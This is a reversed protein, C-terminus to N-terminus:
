NSSGSPVRLMFVGGGETGAFINRSDNPDIALSTINRHFMGQVLQTWSDGGNTSYYTGGQSTGAFVRDSNVPDIALALVMPFQIGNSSPKWTLGGDESRIVGFGATGAYIRNPRRPDVAVTMLVPDILEMQAAPTWTQGSDNSIIVGSQLTGLIVRGGSLVTMTRIEIDSSAVTLPKWNDGGDDTVFLGKKQSAAYLRQTQDPDPQIDIYTDDPLGNMIRTWQDGTLRYVGTNTTAYIKGSGSADESVAYVSQGTLGNGLSQWSDGGDNTVFVGEGNTAAYLTNSKKSPNLNLVSLTRIGAIPADWTAGQDRSRFLGVPDGSVYVAGNEPDVALGTTQNVTLGSISATEVWTKGYDDSRFVGRLDLAVYLAHSKPDFVMQVVDYQPLGQSTLTWTVGADESRYIIGGISGVFIRDRNAPDVAESLIFATKQGLYLWNNGGDETRAVGRSTAAFIRKSNGPDVAIKFVNRDRLGVSSWTDGSDDSRFVGATLSAAFLQSPQDQNVILGRVFLGMGRSKYSWDAGDNTSIFVGTADTGAFVTGTQLPSTALVASQGNKIGKQILQWTTGGDISRYFGKTAFTAYILNSRENDIAVSSVMGDDVGLRHWEDGSTTTEFVGNNTGAILRTPQTPDVALSFIYPESLGNIVAAWTAGFDGSRFVGGGSTGLYVNQPNKQDVAVALIPNPISDGIKLWSSDDIPSAYATGNAAVAYIKDFPALALQVINTDPLGPKPWEVISAGADVTRFMQGRDAGFFAWGEQTPDEVASFVGATFSVQSWSDGANRSVYIGSTTTAYLPFGGRRGQIVSFVRSPVLGDNRSVWTTGGDTSKVVGVFETGGYVTSPASGASALSFITAILGQSQKWEIQDIGTTFVGLDTGAHLRTKGNDNIALLSGLFVNQMGQERPLLTKGGDGSIYFGGHLAPIFLTNSSTDLLVQRANLGNIRFWSTKGDGVYIGTYACVIYSGEVGPRPYIYQISNRSLDSTLDEWKTAGQSLRYAGNSTAILITGNPQQYFDLTAGPQIGDRLTDVTRSGLAVRQIGGEASGLIATNPNNRDIQVVRGSLYRGSIMPAFSDGGDTSIYLDTGSSVVITNSSAPSVAVSLVNMEPLGNNIATWTQGGDKSKFLGHQFTGAYMTNRDSPDLTFAFVTFTSFPSPVPIWTAGRDATRYLGGFYTGAYFVEPSRPDQVLAFVSSSFPGIPQWVGEKQAHATPAIALLCGLVAVTIVNRMM